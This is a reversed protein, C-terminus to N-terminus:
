PASSEPRTGVALPIELTEGQRLIRISIMRGPMMAAVELMSNRGDDVHNGDIHTIIDGPKIGAEDAPGGAYVRTILVGLPSSNASNEESVEAGELGLWGRIVRGHQIIDQLVKQALDVPVALGIGQSGGSRSYIASNIGLLKGGVDVLAGGSNGPNIDADTQLYNEYTTLNLGWRGIASIIGQTVTQGFGYPNGIALVVDGVRAADPNGFSIPRLNPLDVYLVALDTDPDTGVVRAMAIRGDYTSVAIQDAGRIVHENTLVYGDGSVVVGSGLSREIRERQPPNLQNLQFYRQFFPDQWLTNLRQQVKKATSISVVSPAARNVADAYSAVMTGAVPTTPTDTQRLAPLLGRYQLIVVAALLGCLVPWFLFRLLRLM